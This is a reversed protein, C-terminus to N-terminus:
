LAPSDIPHAKGGRMVRVDVALGWGHNSTGPAATTAGTHRYWTQGNWTKVDTNAKPSTRYRALFLTRQAQYSRYTSFPVLVHGAREAAESLAIWAAAAPAVLTATGGHTTVSRLLDPAIRGNQQGTLAAPRTVNRVPYAMLRAGMKLAPPVTSGDRRRPQRLPEQHPDARGAPAAVARADPHRHHLAAPRPAA